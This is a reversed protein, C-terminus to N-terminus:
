LKPEDNPHEVDAKIIDSTIANNAIPSFLSIVPLAQKFANTTSESTSMDELDDESELDANVKVLIENLVHVRNITKKISM